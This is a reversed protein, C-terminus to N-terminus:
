WFSFNTLKLGINALSDAYVNGERYVHTVIFNMERLLIHADGAERILNLSISLHVVGKGVVLARIHIKKREQKRVM